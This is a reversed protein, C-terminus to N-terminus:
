FIWGASKASNVKVAKEQMEVYNVVAKTSSHEYLTM